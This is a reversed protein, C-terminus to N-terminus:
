APQGGGEGHGDSVGPTTGPDGGGDDGAPEGAVGGVGIRSAIAALRHRRDTVSVHLNSEMPKEGTPDTLTIKAPLPLALLKDINEQAKLRAFVPAKDDSKISQYYALSDARFEAKTRGLESMLEDRARALYLECTRAEVDYTKRLAKKIHGKQHGAALLTKTLAIRDALEAKTPKVYRKRAKKAQPEDPATITESVTTQGRPLTSRKQDDQIPFRRSPTSGGEGAQYPPRMAM